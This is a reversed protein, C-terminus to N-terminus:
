MLARLYEVDWDLMEQVCSFREHLALEELTLYDDFGIRKVQAIIQPWDLFGSELTACQYPITAKPISLTLIGKEFVAEAQDVEVPVNLTLTRGFPGCRREQILYDVNELPAKREGKITLTEGEVTIEVDDPDLGTVSAQIILEDPTSYVDVPLVHVRERGRWGFGRRGPAEFLREMTQQLSAVDTVPDWGYRRGM